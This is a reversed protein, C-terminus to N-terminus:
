AFFSRPPPTPPSHTLSDAFINLQPVLEFQAPAVFVFSKPAPPYELKKLNLTFDAKQEASKGAAIAKCLPCPHRGDFTKELAMTFSGSQLNNALMTTWAVSQLAAWHTGTAALLAVIMM